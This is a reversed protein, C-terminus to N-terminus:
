APSQAKLVAPRAQLHCLWAGLLLAALIGHEHHLTTNVTGAGVTVLWASAAAGWLLWDSDGASPAPRRRWLLAFWAVLVAALAATGIAGREALTNVYLSHAHPMYIYRSEEYDKGAETRWARVREHTIASYNDMGVGFWPYRQWATLGMRWVGDRFALVNRERERDEQKRVIEAAFQTLLVGTVVLALASALLPGRWRRWWAAALLPVVLLGVGVAGRSATVILSALVLLAISAAVAREGARWNKWRAFLWTACVGLMIALYIATHNVHGVSHLQLTGSKGVGSWLRYYGYGLGIVASAVLTGLLWVLERASYGGRRVLWALSAYRLLDGAGRWESKHLGAFAAVLFGSAIWLAFLTDWGDWRGGFDRARVRNTLWTAAYAVWLLNKPAEFLPLFLALAVLLGTEVPYRVKRLERLM